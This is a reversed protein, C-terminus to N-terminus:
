KLRIWTEYGDPNRTYDHDNAAEIIDDYAWHGTIDTFQKLNNKINDPLENVKVKRNMMNCVVRVVEARTINQQPRFTGDEAYGSVWGRMYASNIYSKAWHGEIDPFANTNTESLNDFRTAIAAFEARTIARNPAFTGDPYGEIIRISALYNVSQTFWSDGVDKFVTPRQANKEPSILLRWFIMAAEARTIPNNPQMSHDPYGAIFPIHDETFGPPVKHDRDPEPINRSWVAYVTVDANVPTTETFRNSQDYDGNSNIRGDRSLFWGQFTYGSYIPAAPLTGVTGNPPSKPIHVKNPSPSGGNADYTVIWYNRDPTVTGGGPPTGGSNKAEWQAYVTIDTTITTSGSIFDSNNSSGGQKLCWGKFNYDSRSPNAPMKNNANLTTNKDITAIHDAPGGSYNYKFTVDVKTTGIDVRTAESALYYKYNGYVADNGSKATTKYRVYVTQTLGSPTTSTYSSNPNTSWEMTSSDYNTVTGNPGASVIPKTPRKVQIEFTGRPNLIYTDTVNSVEIVPYVFYTGNGLWTSLRILRLGSANANNKYEFKFMDLNLINNTSPSLPMFYFQAITETKGPAVELVDTDKACTITCGIFRGSSDNRFANSGVVNFSKGAPNNIPTFMYKLIDTDSLNLGGQYLRPVDYPQNDKDTQPNYRYPAVTDNFTLEISVGSISLPKASSSTSGNYIQLSATIMKSEQNQEFHVIYRTNADAVLEGNLALLPFNPQQGALAVQFLVLIMLIALITSLAIKNKTLKNM